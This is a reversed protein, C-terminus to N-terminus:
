FSSVKFDNGNRYGRNNHRRRKLQQSHKQHKRQKRKIGAVTNMVMQVARQKRRELRRHSLQNRCQNYQDIFLESGVINRFMQLVQKALNKLEDIGGGTSNGNTSSENGVSSRNDTSSLITERCLPPLFLPLYEQLHEHGLKLSVAALWKVFLIRKRTENPRYKIEFKTEFLLKKVLWEFLHKKEVNRNETQEVAVVNDYDYCPNSYDMIIFVRAIYILNKILQEALFQCAYIDRFILSFKRALNIMKDEPNTFLFFTLINLSVGSLQGFSEPDFWSFIQGFIQVCIGRIWVHPHLLYTSVVYALIQNIHNQFKNKVILNKGTEMKLLKFLFNFHQFLLNDEDKALDNNHKEGSKLSEYRDPDLQESILPLCSPLRKEFSSKENELYLTLMKSALTQKPLSDSRLWSLVFNEFMKDINEQDIKRLLIAMTEHVLKLCEPSEENVLRLAVIVFLQDYVMALIDCSLNKIVNKIMIIAAKRGSVHDVELQKALNILKGKLRNSNIPYDTLYKVYLEIAHDRVHDIETVIAIVMLREMLQHVEKSIFKRALISKLLYYISVNQSNNEIDYDAYAILITLQQDTLKCDSRINIFHAITKFCLTTMQRNDDNLLGSYKQLLLFLQLIISEAHRDFSIIASFKTLMLLLCNLASAIVKLDNSKQLFMNLHELSENLIDHYADSSKISKNHKLIYLYCELAFNSVVHFHSHSNIKSIPNVRRLSKEPIIFSDVMIRQKKSSDSDISNDNMESQIKLNISLSSVFIENLFKLLKEISIHQNHVLGCGIRHFAKEIKQMKKHDNTELLLAKLPEILTQLSSESVSRAMIEYIDYAKIKKAEKTKTVIQSIEKEESLSGFLEEHCAQILDLLCKDLDGGNLKNIIRELLLHVTYIFVHRQYGRCLLVKMENFINVFYKPGIVDLIQALTKRAIERISQAKSQLFQCLRLIISNLNTIFVRRDFQVHQLLKVIALSIPITRIHINNDNDDDDDNFKNIDHVNEMRSQQHLCRHLMPLLKRCLSDYIKKYHLIDSPTINNNNNKDNDGHDDIDNCSKDNLFDESGIKDDDNTIIADFPKQEQQVNKKDDNQDKGNGCNQKVREKRNDNKNNNSSKKAKSSSKRLSKSRYNFGYESTIREFDNPMLTKEILSVHEPKLFSFKELLASIIKISIKPDVVNKVNTTTPSLLNNVHRSLIADYKPWSCYQFFTALAEVSTNFLSVNTQQGGPSSSYSILNEVIPILFNMYVASSFSELLEKNQLLRNLARARRHLQIHRINQWFDLEEDDDCLKRLQDIHINGLSSSSRIIEVLLNIFEISASEKTNRIGQPIIEFLIMNIVYKNFLDASSQMKFLSSIKLIISSSLERISFDDFTNLFFACNLLLLDIFKLQSFSLKAPNDIGDLYESIKNFASIRCDYDPEEPYKSNLSNLDRIMEALPLFFENKKSLNMLYICLEKRPIPRQVLSFLNYSSTLIVDFSEVSLNQSLHSLIKIIFIEKEEEPRKKRSISRILLIMITHSDTADTVYLSLRALINIEQLSFKPNSKSQYNLKMREIIDKIHPILILSGFNISKNNFEPYQEISPIVFDFNNIALHAIPEDAILLNEILKVIFGFTIPSLKSNKFLQIISMLPTSDTKSDFHKILLIFYRPNESWVNFLRLLPSPYNQSETSINAVLPRILSEFLIDIEIQEFPYTLFNNFFYETAKFCNTRFIKLQDVIHEKIKSRYQVSLLQSCISSCIILVKFIYQMIRTSQNGFHKMLFELTTIFSQFNKFPIFAEVNVFENSIKELLYAYDTQLLPKISAYVFDMFMIQQEDNFNCLIKMILSRVFDAKSKGHTKTGASAIMKGITIRLFLPLVKSRDEVAIVNDEDNDRIMFSNIESVFSKDDILRSFNERYKTLHTQNYTLLCNFAHNQCQSNPSSLLDLYIQNLQPEKHVAKPNKFKGFVDLFAFFTKWTMKTNEMRSESVMDSTINERSNIRSIHHENFEKSLFEFFLDVFESNRREILNPFKEFCKLLLLRHNLHDSAFINTKNIFEIAIKTRLSWSDLQSQSAKIFSETQRFHNFLIEIFRIPKNSNSKAYTEIVEIIQKWLVNLNEYLTGLLFCVPAMDFKVENLSQPQYLSIYTSDLKWILRLRERYNELDVPISEANLCIQFVSMGKPNEDTIPVHLDLLTLLHLCVLRNLRLPSSLNHELLPYLDSLEANLKQTFDQSAIPKNFSIFLDLSQLIRTCNPNARLFTTFTKFDFKTIPSNPHSNLITFIMAEYLLEAYINSDEFSSPQLLSSDIIKIINENIFDDFISNFKNSISSLITLCSYMIRPDDCKITECLIEIVQQNDCGFDISYKQIKDLDKGLVPRPKKKLIVNSMFEIVCIRDDINNSLLVKFFLQHLYKFLIIDYIPSCIIKSTFNLLDILSLCTNPAYFKECLIEMRDSSLHEYKHIFIKEIIEFLKQKTEPDFIEFLYNVSKFAVDFGNNVHKCRKYLVIQHILEIIRIKHAEDNPEIMLLKWIITFCDPQQINDFAFTLFYKMSNLTGNPSKGNLEDFCIQLYSQAKHNISGQVGKISEFIIRGVAKSLNDNQEVNEFIIEFLKSPDKSRRILFAFTEGTFNIVYQKKCTFAKKFIQFHEEIDKIIHKWLYKFLFTQCVFINEIIEPDENQMSLNVLRDFIPSFYEYFESQLDRSLAILLELIANLAKNEPNVMADLLTDILIKKKHVIQVLNQVDLPSGIRQRLQRFDHTCNLDTWKELAIAFFSIDEDSQDNEVLRRKLNNVASINIKNLKENFTEFKHTNEEKHAHSKFKQFEKKM